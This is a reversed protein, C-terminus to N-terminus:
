EAAGERGVPPALADLALAGPLALVDFAEGYRDRGLPAGRYASLGTLFQEYAFDGVQSRHEALARLRVAHADTVDRVLAPAAIPTWVEYGLVTGTRHPDGGAEPFWPGAAGGVARMGLHHAAVHDVHGDAAHPLLVVDPRATRLLGVLVAVLDRGVDIAGERQRLFHTRAVGTVACAALAEAERTAAVDQPTGTLAGADGSTVYVVTVHAGARVSQIVTGGCGIVDDDPHPALVMVRMGGAAESTSM